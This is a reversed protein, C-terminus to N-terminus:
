LTYDVGTDTSGHGLTFISEQCKLLSLLLLPPQHFSDPCRPVWPHINRSWHSPLHCPGQWTVVWGQPALHKGLCTVM